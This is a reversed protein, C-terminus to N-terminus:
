QTSDKLSQFGITSVSKNAFQDCCLFFLQMFFVLNSFKEGDFNFFLVHWFMSSDCHGQGETM